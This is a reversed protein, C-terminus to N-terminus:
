EDFVVVDGVVMVATGLVDSTKSGGEEENEGTILWSVRWGVVLLWM